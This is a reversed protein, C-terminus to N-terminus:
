TTRVGCVTSYLQSSRAVRRRLALLHAESVDSTPNCSPLCRLSVGEDDVLLGRQARTQVRATLPVSPVSSRNLVDELPGSSALLLIVEELLENSVKALQRQPLLGGGDLHREM